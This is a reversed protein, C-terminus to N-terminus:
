VVKELTRVVRNSGVIQQLAKVNDDVAGLCGSANQFSSQGQLCSGHKSTEMVSFGAWFCQRIHQQQRWSSGREQRLHKRQRRTRNITASKFSHASFGDLWWPRTWFPVRITSKWRTWLLLTCGTINFVSETLKERLKDFVFLQVQDRFWKSGDMRTKDFGYTREGLIESFTFIIQTGIRCIGAPNAIVVAFHFLLEWWAISVIMSSRHRSVKENSLIVFLGKLLISDPAPPNELATVQHVTLRFRLPVELM